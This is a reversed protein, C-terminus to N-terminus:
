QNQLVPSHACTEQWTFVRTLMHSPQTLYKKLLALHTPLENLFRKCKATLFLLIFVFQFDRLINYCSSFYVEWQLHLSRRPILWLMPDVTNVMLSFEIKAKMNIQHMSLFNIIGCKNELIAFVSSGSQTLAYFGITDQSSANFM